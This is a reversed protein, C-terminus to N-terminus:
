GNSKEKQRDFFVKIREMMVQATLDDEEWIEDAIAIYPKMGSEVSGKYVEALETYVRRPVQAADVDVSALADEGYVKRLHMLDDLFEILKNVDNGADLLGQIETESLKSLSATNEIPVLKGAEAFSGFLRLLNNLRLQAQDRKPSYVFCAKRMGAKKVKEFYEIEKRVGGPRHGDYFPRYVLFCDSQEVLHHDRTNVQGSIRRVLVDLVGRLQPDDLEAQDWLPDPEALNPPPLFLLDVSQRYREADWRTTLRPYYHQVDGSAAREAPLRWEDITTPFFGVWRSSLEQEVKSLDTILQTAEATGENRRVQSIPHSVYFTPGDRFILDFLTQIPHKIAVLYHKCYPGSSSQANSSMLAPQLQGAIHRSLIIENSRWDLIRLL